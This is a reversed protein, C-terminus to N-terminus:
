QGGSRAAVVPNIWLKIDFDFGYIQTFLSWPLLPTYSTSSDRGLGACGAARRRGPGAASPGAGPRGVTARDARPPSPPPKRFMQARTTGGEGGRLAASGRVSPLSPQVTSYM